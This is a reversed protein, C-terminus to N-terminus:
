PAPFWFYPFNSPPNANGTGCVFTTAPNFKTWEDHGDFYLINAGTPKYGKLHSTQHPEVYGGRISCFNTADYTASRNNSIITDLMLVTLGARHTEVNQMRRYFGLSPVRRAVNTLNSVLSMDQPFNGNRFGMYSYGLVRYQPLAFNWLGDANQAPNGPCYLLRRAGDPRLGNSSGISGIMLDAVGPAVDWYWSGGSAGVNPLLDNNSTAYVALGKGVSSLQSACQVRRATDRSQAVTPVLIAILVGIIAIVVLLEVLTFARRMTM